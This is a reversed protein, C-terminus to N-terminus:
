VLTQLQSRDDDSNLDNIESKLQARLPQLRQEEKKDIKEARSSTTGKGTQPSARSIGGGAPSLAPTRSSAKRDVIM